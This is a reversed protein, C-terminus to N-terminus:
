PIAEEHAVQGLVEEADGFPIYGIERDGSRATFLDLLPLGLQDLRREGLGTEGAFGHLAEVTRLHGDSPCKAADVHISGAAAFIDQARSCAPCVFRHIVDRSFEIVVDDSRLDHQARKSLQSLSLDHSTETLHVIEPVTYHSM